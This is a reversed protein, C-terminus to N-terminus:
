PQPRRKPRITEGSQIESSRFDSEIVNSYIICNRGIKTDRPIAARKGILTLGTNLVKPSKRNLQFDDGFGIHCDSEVIIEKDLISRDIISNEGIVTDSMIISDKVVAGEAVMVGSSLISHEVRGQISKKSGAGDVITTNDKDVTIRKAQGMDKLSINELKLGLDETIAQGGTLVFPLLRADVVERWNAIDFRYKLLLWVLGALPLLALLWAPRLFHFEAIM